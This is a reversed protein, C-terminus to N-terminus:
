AQQIQTGPGALYMGCLIRFNTLSVKNTQRTTCSPVVNSRHMILGQRQAINTLTLGAPSALSQGGGVSWGRATWM